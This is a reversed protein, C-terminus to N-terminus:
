FARSIGFMVQAATDGDMARTGAAARWGFGSWEGEIAAEVRFFVDDYAPLEIESASNTVGNLAFTATADGSETVQTYGVRLSPRAARWTALQVELGITAEGRGYDSVPIDVNSVSAGHETYADLKVHSYAFQLFPGIKVPGVPFAFGVQGELGYTSGDPSGHAIQGYAAPRTIDLKVTGVGAAGMAYAGAESFYAAYVAGALSEGEIDFGGDGEGEPKGASLAFGYRVNNTGGELGVAFSGGTAVGFDGPTVVHEYGGQGWGRAGSVAVGMQHARRTVGANQLGTSVPASGLSAGLVRAGAMAQPAADRMYALAQPDIYTPLTLRYVMLVNDNNGVGATPSSLATNANTLGAADIDSSVFDNDNGILLFFDHPKGEELVPVLGMAEWKESLTYQVSPATKTNIGFKSLQATNLINVLEVQQVPTIGSVLAGSLNTTATTSIPTPNTGTSYPTGAINTAGTVDVLLVSKYAIANANGNTGRGNGDRSLVLFQTNNLALVESQAATATANGTGTLSNNFVPLQLVYEAVPTTPTKTASIDYVLVRTNNRRVAVNTPNDQLAASQLVAFLRKGDPSVSVGEMGQNSRRGTSGAILPADNAGNYNILGNVRPLLDPNAQIAGVQKGTKDFYYIMAGYEDGVYFSGDNMFAVAEADISIKGAGVDGAPPTPYSIGDRVIVGAQPDRGTFVQGNTDKLLFGGAQTLTMQQVDSALNASGTYPNLSLTFQNLRAAYNTTTFGGVNNPGRDPLTFMTAGYSGNENRRWTKLDIAMGSFSGLTEGNFDHLDAPLRATGVMGQNVFTNGGLTVSTAGAVTIINPANYAVSQALAGDAALIALWSVASALIKRKSL